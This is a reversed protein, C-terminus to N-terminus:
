ARTCQPCAAQTKVSRRRQRRASPLLRNGGRRRGFPSATFFANSLEPPTRIKRSARSNRSRPACIMVTMRQAASQFAFFCFMLLCNRPRVASFSRNKLPCLPSSRFIKRLLGRKEFMRGNLAFRVTQWHREACLRCRGASFFRLLTAANEPFYIRHKKYFIKAKIPYM